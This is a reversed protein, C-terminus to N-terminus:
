LAINAQVYLLSLRLPTSNKETVDKPNNYQIHSALAQDNREADKGRGEKGEEDESQGEKEVDEDRGAEGAGVGEEEEKARVEGGEKQVIEYGVEGDVVNAGVVEVEDVSASERGGWEDRWSFLGDLLTLTEAM